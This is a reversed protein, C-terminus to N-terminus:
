YVEMVVHNTRIDLEKALNEVIQSYGGPFIVEEGSYERDMGYHRASINPLDTAWTNTYWYNALSEYLERRETLGAMMMYEDFVDQVSKGSFSDKRFIPEYQFFRDLTLWELENIPIYSYKLYLYRKFDDFLNMVEKEEADDLRPKSKHEILDYVARAEKHDESVTPTTDIDYKETLVYIPNNKIGHIWSAGLDLPGAESDVTWIRGGIRDKAELVVVDYGLQRLAEAASLGSIGAGIVVVDYVKGEGFAPLTSSITIILSIMGFVVMWDWLGM